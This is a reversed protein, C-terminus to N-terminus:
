ALVCGQDTQNSSNNNNSTNKPVLLPASEDAGSKAPETNNKEDDDNNSNNEEEKKVIIVQEPEKMETKNEDTNKAVNQGPVRYIELGLDSGLAVLVVADEDHDYDNKRLCSQVTWVREFKAAIRCNISSTTTILTSASSDKQEPEGYEIIAWKKDESGSFLIPLCPHPHVWSVNNLHGRFISICTRAEYNWLRVTRDDASSALLPLEGSRIYDVCNM